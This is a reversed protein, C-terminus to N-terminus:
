EQDVDVDEPAPGDLADEFFERRERAVAEPAVSGAREAWRLYDVLQERDLDGFGGGDLLTRVASNIEPGDSPQYEIEIDFDTDVTLMQGPPPAERSAEIADRIGQEALTSFPFDRQGAAEYLVAAAAVLADTGEQSDPLEGLMTAREEPTAHEFFVSFDLLSDAVRERIAREREHSAQRSYEGEAARLYNRDAESLMGRGREDDTM